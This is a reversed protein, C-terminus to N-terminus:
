MNVMFLVTGCHLFATSMGEFNIPIYIFALVRGVDEKTLTYESTGSSVLLFDRGVFGIIIPHLYSVQLVYCYLYFILRKWLLLDM